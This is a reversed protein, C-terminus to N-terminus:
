GSFNVRWAPQKSGFYDTEIAFATCATLGDAQQGVQHDMGLDLQHWQPLRKPDRSRFFLGGIGSVHDEATITFTKARM